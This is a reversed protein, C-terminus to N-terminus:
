RGAPHWTSASQQSGYLHTSPLQATGTRQTDAPSPHPVPSVQQLPAVQWRAFRPVDEVQQKAARWAQVAAVGEGRAVGAVGAGAEEAAGAGEVAAARPPPASFAVGM